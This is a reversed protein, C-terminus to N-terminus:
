GDPLGEVPAKRNSPTGWLNEVPKVQVSNKYADVVAQALNEESFYPVFGKSDNLRAYIAVRGGKTGRSMVPAICIKVEKGDGNVVIPFLQYQADEAFYSKPTSVEPKPESGNLHSEISAVVSRVFVDEISKEQSM